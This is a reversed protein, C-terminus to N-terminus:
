PKETMAALSARCIALPMTVAQATAKAVSGEFVVAAELDSGSAGASELQWWLDRKPWFMREIKEVVEWAAAIDTSYPETYGEIPMLDSHGGYKTTNCKPCRVEWNWDDDTIVPWEHLCLGMVKEAVLADLERGAELESM